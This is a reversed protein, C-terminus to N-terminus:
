ITPTTDRMNNCSSPRTGTSHPHGEPDGRRPTPLLSLPAARESPPASTEWAGALLPTAAGLMLPSPPPLPPLEPGVSEVDDKSSSGTRVVQAATLALEAAGLIAVFPEAVTSLTLLAWRLTWSGSVGAVAYSNFLRSQHQLCRRRLLRPPQHM